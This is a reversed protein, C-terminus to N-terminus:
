AVGGNWAVGVFWEQWVRFGKAVVKFEGSVRAWVAVGESSEELSAMGENTGCGDCM